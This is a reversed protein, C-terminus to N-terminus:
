GLSLKRKLAQMKEYAQKQGHDSYDSQQAYPATGVGSPQYYPSKRNADIKDQVSSQKQPPKHLNLTKINKYVVKMREFEDPIKLVSEALEPDHNYFKDGNEQTMIENFDPNNKLWQTKREEQLATHVAMQIEQQTQKRSQEGFKNLKKELRKNDVYSDTDDDESDNRRQMAEQALREAEMRAAREQSLQREYKAELKQELARFNLEKDNAKNEQTQNVPPQTQEQM